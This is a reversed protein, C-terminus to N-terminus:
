WHFSTHSTNATAIAGNNLKMSQLEAMADMKKGMSIQQENFLRKCQGETVVNSGMASANGNTTETQIDTPVGSANFARQHNGIVSM